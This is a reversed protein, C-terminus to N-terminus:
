TDERHATELSFAPICVAWYEAEEDFPNSYRVRTGKRVVMSEGAALVIEKGDMEVLKKGRVMLTYEDFEACQYPEGWRPPAILHAVSIGEDRTVARGFHEEIVGGGPIPIVLPSPKRFDMQTM